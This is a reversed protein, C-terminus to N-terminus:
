GVDGSMARSKPTLSGSPIKLVSGVSQPKREGFRSPKGKALYADMSGHEEVIRARWNDAERFRAAESKWFHVTRLDPMLADIDDYPEGTFMRVVAARVLHGRLNRDWGELISERVWPHDQFRKAFHGGFHPGWQGTKENKAAGYVFTQAKLTAQDVTLLESM